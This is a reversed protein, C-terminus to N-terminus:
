GTWQFEYAPVLISSGSAPLRGQELSAVLGLVRFLRMMQGSREVAELHYADEVCM